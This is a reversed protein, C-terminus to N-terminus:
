GNKGFIQGKVKSFHVCDVKGGTETEVKQRIGIREEVLRM